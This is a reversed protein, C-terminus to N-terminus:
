GMPEVLWCGTKKEVCVPSHEEEPNSVDMFRQVLSLPFRQFLQPFDLLGFVFLGDRCDVGGGPDDLKCKNLCKAADM